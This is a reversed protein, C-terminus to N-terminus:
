AAAAAQGNNGSGQVGIAQHDGSKCGHLIVQCCWQLQTGAVGAGVGPRGKGWPLRPQFEEALSRAARRARDLTIAPSAAEGTRHHASDPRARSSPRM